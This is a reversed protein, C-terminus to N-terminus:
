SHRRGSPRRCLRLQEPRTVSSDRRQPNRRQIATPIRRCWRSTPPSPKGTLTRLTHSEEVVSAMSGGVFDFEPTTGDKIFTVIDAESWGGIGGEGTTINPVNGDGEAAKAGALWRSKDSGGAGFMTRPTHCEGCHGLAEVLYQGQKASEPHM